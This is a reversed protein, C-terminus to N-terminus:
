KGEVYSSEDELAAKQSEFPGVVVSETEPDDEDFYGLYGDDSGNRAAVADAAEVLCVTWTRRPSQIIFWPM